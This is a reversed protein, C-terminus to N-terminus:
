ARAVPASKSAFPRVCWGPLFSSLPLVALLSIHDGVHAPLLRAATGLALNWVKIPAIPVSAAAHYIRGLESPLVTPPITMVRYGGTPAAYNGADNLM